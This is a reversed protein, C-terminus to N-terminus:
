PALSPTAIPLTVVVEHSGDSSVTSAVGGLTTARDPLDGLDPAAGVVSMRVTLTSEDDTISVSAPSGDSARDVAVYATSEVVPVYRGTPLATVRLPRSEALARVAAALGADTLVLPALGRALSRLDDIARNLEAMADALAPSPGSRAQLLRLGLSLGVLRQQAGDHLDREVRRREADGTEVLRLGSARLDEVQALAQARLQEHELGLHIVSVLEDAPDRGSLAGARHVLVALPRGAHELPTLRRGTPVDTSVPRAAADVFRAGGDVSYALVLEPDDLRAALDDRLTRTSAAVGSLDVVVRALARHARRERVLEGLAGLGLLALAVGQAVWLRRDLDQSGLFGQRWSHAYAALSATEFALTALLTPGSARRAAPSARLLAVAVVGVSVAMWVLGLRVGWREVAEFAAADDTVLWLNTACAHCGGSAPDFVMAALVGQVGVTVIYGAAVLGVRPRSPVLGAARALGAHLAAAPAAAYLVLGWSFAADSGALPNDWEGVLWAIGAVAFAAAAGLRGPPRLALGVAALACCAAPVVLLLRGGKVAGATSFSPGLDALSVAVSAAAATAVVASTAAVVGRVRMRDAHRLRRKGSM